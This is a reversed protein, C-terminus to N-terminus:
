PRQALVIEVPVWMDEISSDRIEFGVAELARGVYIPRCDMLNPFHRHTWEYARYVLGHKGLKSIGVIVIRGGPRLVRFCEALVVPIAPTDFSELTFSMTVADLSAAECPLHEADGCVVETRDSLGAEHLVQQSLQVMQDSIDIGSVKGSPGVARALEVLMHGTGCGIELIKEGQQPALKALGIQRMPGESRESLLDYVKAIKNYYSRTEEKSQLVRQVDPEYDLPSTETM